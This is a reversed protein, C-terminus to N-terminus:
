FRVRRMLSDVADRQAEAFPLYDALVDMIRDEDQPDFYVTLPPMFRQLPTLLIAHLPGEEVVSFSKFRDYGYFKEGITLGSHNVVYQLVQPQRAAFVGFAIGCITIMIPSFLDHTFVYIGIALAAIVFGLGMFWSLNKQHAVYESASWTISPDAQSYDQAPPQQNSDAAYDWTVPAAPPQATAAPQPPEVTPQEPQPATAPEPPTPADGPTITQGPQM